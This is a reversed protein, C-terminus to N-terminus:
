KRFAAATTATDEYAKFYSIKGGTVKFRMAWDTSFTKGTSTAIGTIKMPTCIKPAAPQLQVVALRPRIERREYESARNMPVIPGSVCMCASRRANQIM